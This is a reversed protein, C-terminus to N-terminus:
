ALFPTASDDFEYTDRHLILRHRQGPAEADGTEYGADGSWMAVPVKGLRGMRTQYYRTETRHFTDLAASVEDFHTLYHLTVWTPPAMEIEGADRRTLADAPSLWDSDHIEGGDITVAQGAGRALFFWTGFRKPAIPPPTWHSFFVLSDPDIIQGAEEVAERVAARRAVEDADAAGEHDEPDIRGGPFVWMGGFAIKSNRRLLLTELGGPADRLVVVTAAPIIPPDTM